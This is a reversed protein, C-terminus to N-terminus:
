MAAAPIARCRGAAALARYVDLYAAVMGNLSFRQRAAARCEERDLTGSAIMADAMEAVDNVLFGTRGHEVVDPLAGNPFAV